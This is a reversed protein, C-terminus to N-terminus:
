TSKKSRAIAIDTVTDCCITHVLRMFDKTLAASPKETNIREQMKELLKKKDSDVCQIMKPLLSKWRDFDENDPPKIKKDLVSLIFYSEKATLEMDFISSASSLPM